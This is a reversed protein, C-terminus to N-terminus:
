KDGLLEPNECKNGIVELVNPATDEFSFNDNPEIGRLYWGFDGWEVVASFSYEGDLYQVIDWKYIEVGNKDKLGTYQMLIVDDTVPEIELNATDYVKSVESTYTEVGDETDLRLFLDWPDRDMYTGRWARFKIERM